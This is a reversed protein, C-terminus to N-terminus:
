IQRDGTVLQEVFATAIAGQGALSPHLGDPLLLEPKPPDGFTEWLDVLIDEGAVERILRAV